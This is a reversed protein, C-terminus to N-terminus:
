RLGGCSFSVVSVLKLRIMAQNTQETIAAHITEIGVDYTADAPVKEVYDFLFVM